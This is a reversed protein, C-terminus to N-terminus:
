HVYDETAQFSDSKAAKFANRFELPVENNLLEGGRLYRYIQAYNKVEAHDVRRMIHWPRLESTSHLGMAGLMHAVSEMTEEHFYHVRKRKETVVLGDVLHKKSTAVGTPCDNSNCRLAQICGLAFLMARASYVLDAGMALNKIVGFGTNIKGAVILKLNKRINFGVLVNHVYILADRGPSGMHNSFEMPAAGTGGEGGDVSIYDPYTDLEVMAKCISIFERRKGLCLKFGIPKGGSLERLKKVFQILGIPTSFASHSPPSLVDKGMEVGRIEAVEASVKSAPLIGGHGPKAGQSLKIEIMKINDLKAKKAFEVESFTGDINRCSFYGTGIQWILDGGNKLHYPSVGGEGTNHAFGGDKAGGNLAMVAHTSLSGYSMASINLISANYPKLCDKGGITVRLSNPDVHSAIISHNLWEYGIQYVDMQTGFPLSDLQKKSRQYIVSRMERSFPKGDDNSEIFYQYIEPRILEFLYRFRGLIPFNRRITHKKQFVDIFGLLLLMSLIATVMHHVPYYIEPLLLYGSLIVVIFVASAIFFEKRM